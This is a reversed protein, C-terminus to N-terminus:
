KLPFCYSIFTDELSNKCKLECLYRFSLDLTLFPNRITQVLRFSDIATLQFQIDYKFIMILNM